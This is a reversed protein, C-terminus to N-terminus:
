PRITPNLMADGPLYKDWMFSQKQGYRGSEVWATYFRLRIYVFGTLYVNFFYRM